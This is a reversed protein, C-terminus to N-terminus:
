GSKTAVLARGLGNGTHGAAVCLTPDPCSVGQFSGRGSPTSVDTWTTGDWMGAWPPGGGSAADGVAACNNTEAVCSIGLMEGYFPSPPSPSKQWTGNSLGVLSTAGVAWCTSVTPCSVAKLQRGSHAPSRAVDADAGDIHVILPATKTSSLVTFGVAWCHTADVCSIGDLVGKPAVRRASWRKGNWREILAAQSPTQAENTGVAVCTNSTPCDVGELFSDTGRLPPLKVVRWTRGNWREAFPSQISLVQALGVMTCRHSSACSVAQPHANSPTPAHVQSWKTGNWRDVLILSASRNRNPYEGVTFCSATTACSVAILTSPKPAPANARVFGTSNAGAAGAALLLSLAAALTLTPRVLFRRSM